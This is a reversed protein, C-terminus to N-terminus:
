KGSASATIAVQFVEVEAPIFHFDGILARNGKGLVDAYTCCGLGSSSAKDFVDTAVWNTTCVNLSPGFSPGLEASFDLAIDVIAVPFRVPGPSYPGVVSLLFADPCAVHKGDWGDCEAAVPSEWSIGKYGGFVFGKDCRVLVLTPGQDDCLPAHFAAATMGDRSGRYMLTYERGPLWQTTLKDLFSAYRGPAVAALVASDGLAGRKVTWPSGYLMTGCVNISLDVNALM